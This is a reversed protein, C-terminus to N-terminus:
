PAVAIMAQMGPHFRCIYTISGAMKVVARGEGGAPLDVDFAGDRATATHRFMDKNRWVVTDGVHIGAPAPGFAMDVIEIVHTRPEAQAGALPPLLLGVIGAFLAVRRV